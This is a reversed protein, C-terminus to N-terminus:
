SELSFEEDECDVYVETQEDLVRHYEWCSYDEIEEEVWEVLLWRRVGTAL